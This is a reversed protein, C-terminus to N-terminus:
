APSAASAKRAGSGGCFNNTMAKKKQLRHQRVAAAAHVAFYYVFHCRSRGIPAEGPTRTTLAVGDFYCSTEASFPQLLAFRKTGLIIGIQRTLLTSYQYCPERESADSPSKYNGKEEQFEIEGNQPFARRLDGCGHLLGFQWRGAAARALSCGAQACGATHTGSCEAANQVSASIWLYIRWLAGWLGSAPQGARSLSNGVEQVVCLGAPM